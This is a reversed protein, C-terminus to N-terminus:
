VGKRCVQQYVFHGPGPNSVVVWHCKVGKGQSAGRAAMASQPAVLMACFVASSAAVMSLKKTNLHFM